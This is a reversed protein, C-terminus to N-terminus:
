PGSGANAVELEWLAPSDQEEGSPRFDCCPGDIEECEECRSCECDDQINAGCINCNNCACINCPRKDKIAIEM